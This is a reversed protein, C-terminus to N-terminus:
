AVIFYKLIASHLSGSTFKPNIHLTKVTPHSDSYVSCLMSIVVKGIHPWGYYYGVPLVFVCFKIKNTRAGLIKNHGLCFARYLEIIVWSWIIEHSPHHVYRRVTM